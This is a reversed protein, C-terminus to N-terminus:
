AKKNIFNFIINSAIGTLLGVIAALFPSAPNWQSSIGWMIVLPLLSSVATSILFIIKSRRVSIITKKLLTGYIREIEADGNTDINKLKLEEDTAILDKRYPWIEVNGGHQGVYGDESPQLLTSFEIKAIPKNTEIKIYDSSTNSLVIGLRGKFGPDAYTNVPAIGLSFFHGVLLVRGILDLPMDFYEKTVCVVQCNPRLVYYDGDNIFIKRAEHNVLEFFDNSTRAEYCVEKIRGLDYNEKIIEKNKIRSIIAQQNLTSM